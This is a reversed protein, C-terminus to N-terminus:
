VMVNRTKLFKEEPRLKRYATISCYKTSEPDKANQQYSVEQITLTYNSKNTLGVPPDVFNVIMSPMFFRKPIIVKSFDYTREKTASNELMAAMASFMSGSDSIGQQLNSIRADKRGWRKVAQPNKMLMEHSDKSQFIHSYTPGTWNVRWGYADFKESVNGSHRGSPLPKIANPFQKVEKGISNDHYWRITNEHNSGVEYMALWYKKSTDAVVNKKVFQSINYVTPNTPIKIVPITFETIVKSSPADADDELIAGGSRYTLPNANNTGAGVRQIIVALNEFRLASVPIQQAIDKNYLDLYGSMSTSGETSSGVKGTSVLHSAYESSSISDTYTHENEVYGIDEASDGEEEETKIVMGSHLATPYKATLIKNPDVFIDVNIQDEISQLIQAASTQNFDLQYIPDNLDNPIGALSIGTLQQLTTTQANFKKSSPIMYNPNTFIERIVNKAKFPESMIFQNTTPDVSASFEVNMLINALVSEIGIGTFKYIFGPKRIRESQIQPCPGTIMRTLDNEQRGADITVQCGVDLEERDIVRHLSDDITFNFSGTQGMGVTLNLDTMTFFNREPHFPNFIYLLRGQADAITVQFKPLTVYEQSFTLLPDVQAM